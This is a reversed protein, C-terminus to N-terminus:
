DAHYLQIALILECISECTCLMYATHPQLDYQFMLSLSQVHVPRRASAMHLHLLCYCTAGAACDALILQNCVLQPCRHQSMSHTTVSQRWCNTPLLSIPSRTTCNSSCSMQMSHMQRVQACCYSEFGQQAAIASAMILAELALHGMCM